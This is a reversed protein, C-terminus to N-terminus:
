PTVRAGWRELRTAYLAQQTFFFRPQERALARLGEISLGRQRLSVDLLDDFRAPAASSAGSRAEVEYRDVSEELAQAYLALPEAESPAHAVHPQATAACGVVLLGFAAVLHQHKVIAAEASASRLKLPRAPAQAGRNRQHLFARSSTRARQESCTLFYGPRTPAAGRM